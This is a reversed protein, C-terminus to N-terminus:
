PQEGTSKKKGHKKSGPYEETWKETAKKNRQEAWEQLATAGFKRMNDVVLIEADNAKDARGEINEVVDLMQEIHKKLEPYEEIREAFSKEM